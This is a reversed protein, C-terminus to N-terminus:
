TVYVFSFPFSSLSLCLFLVYGQPAPSSTWQLFKKTSEGCSSFCHSEPRLQGLVEAQHPAGLLTWLLSPISCLFPTTWKLFLILPKSLPSLICHWSSLSTAMALSSQKHGQHRRLMWASLGNQAADQFRYKALSVPFCVSEEWARKLYEVRWVWPRAKWERKCTRREYEGSEGMLYEGTKSKEWRKEEGRQQGQRPVSQGAGKRFSKNRRYFWPWQDEDKDMNGWDCHCVSFPFSLIHITGGFISSFMCVWSIWAIFHISVASNSSLKVPQIHDTCDSRSQGWLAVSRKNLKPKFNEESPTKNQNNKSHM